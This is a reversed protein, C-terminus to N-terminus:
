RRGVPGVAAQDIVELLVAVHTELARSVRILTELTHVHRGSELRRWYDPRWGMREAAEAQTLGLARRRRRVENAIQVELVACGACAALQTRSM